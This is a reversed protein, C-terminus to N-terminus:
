FDPTASPDTLVTVRYRRTVRVCVINNLVILLDRVSGVGVIMEVRSALRLRVM